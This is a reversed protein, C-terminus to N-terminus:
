SGQKCLNSVIGSWIEEIRAVHDKEGDGGQRHAVEHVLVRLTLDREALIKKALLIRRDDGKFMGRIAQDRFDVVDIESIGVKEVGNVMFIAREVSAKEEDSFDHWGYRTTAEERLKAKNADVSGLKQELVHRLSKPVVVGKKGLHEVDQSDGLTAVPLATDGHRKVFEETVAKKVDESLFQAAYQDVGEVDAAERELLQTFNSILDPRRGLAERWIVQTRYQLDYKSVMKRDRDLDADVLDYGYSFRPDNSVFIGKVYVKGSFRPALLLSGSLSKVIENDKITGLFLFCDKMQEWAEEGINGIEIAVRNKQERPQIDFTLVDAQFKESRQIAPVWVESGSRIKISHGARVLALIGLKLGEGFKGILDGRGQKSTHGLLLAEHPLTAGENEIILVGVDKRYRVKLPADFETQADKGNQLLERIGEYAGWLPLYTAQITLEIKM